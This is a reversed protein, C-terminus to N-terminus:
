GDIERMMKEIVPELLHWPVERIALATELAALPVAAQAVKVAQLFIRQFEPEMRSAARATAKMAVRGKATKGALALRRAYKVASREAVAPTSGAAIWAEYANVVATRRAPPLAGLLRQLKLTM